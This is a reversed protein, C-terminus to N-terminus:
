HTWLADIEIGGNRKSGKTDAEDEQDSYFGEWHPFRIKWNKM